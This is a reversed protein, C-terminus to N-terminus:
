VMFADFFSILLGAGTVVAAGIWKVLRLNRDHSDVRNTLDTVKERVDKDLEKMDSELKQQEVRMEDRSQKMDEKLDKFDESIFDVKQSILQVDTSVGSIADLVAKSFEPSPTNEQDAM